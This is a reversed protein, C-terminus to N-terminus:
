TRSSGLAGHGAASWTFSGGHGARGAHDRLQGSDRVTVAGGHRHIGDTQLKGGAAHHAEDAGVSHALGAHQRQDGADPLHLGAGHGHQAAIHGVAAMAGGNARSDGVHRLSQPLVEIGGQRNRFVHIEEAPQEALRLPLPGLANPFQEVRGAQSRKGVPRRALQGAAHFLLQPQATRQDVIGIQQNEVFGGGAHVRQGPALEPFEDVRDALAPGAHAHQDGGGVHFFGFAEAPQHRHIGALHQRHAAGGFELGLGPRGAQLM